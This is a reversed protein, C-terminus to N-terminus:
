ARDKRNVAESGPITKGEVEHIIEGHKILLPIAWAAFRIYSWPVKSGRMPEVQKTTAHLRVHDLVRNLDRNRM